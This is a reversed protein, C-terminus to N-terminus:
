CDPSPKKASGRIVLPQSSFGPGISLVECCGKQQRRDALATVLCTLIWPYSFLVSRSLLFSCLIRPRKFWGCWRSELVCFPSSQINWGWCVETKRKKMPFSCKTQSLILVVKIDGINFLSLNLFVWHPILVCHFDIFHGIALICISVYIYYLYEQSQLINVGLDWKLHVSYTNRLDTIRRKNKQIKLFIKM